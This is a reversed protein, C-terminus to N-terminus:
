PLELKYVGIFGQWHRSHILVHANKQESCVLSKKLHVTEAHGPRLLPHVYLAASRPEAKGEAATPGPRGSVWLM